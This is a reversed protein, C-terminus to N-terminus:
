VRKTLQIVGCGIKEGADGAPQSQFDDRQGHIVVTRGIIEKLEIRDDWFAMWAYGHNSLLLPFDGAHLPHLTEEPNFHSGTNQFSGTCDGNEHIHMAFFGSKNEKEPLGFVEATVLIGEGMTDYFSIQGSLNPHTTNGEVLAVAGPVYRSMIVGYFENYNQM